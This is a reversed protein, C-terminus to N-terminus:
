VIVPDPPVAGYVNATVLPDNGAPRENDDPPLRVPVGVEDPPEDNVTVAVSAFPQM